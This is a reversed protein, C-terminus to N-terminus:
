FDHAIIDEKRYFPKFNFDPGILPRHERYPVDRKRYSFTLADTKDAFGTASLANRGKGKQAEKGARWELDSFPFYLKLM